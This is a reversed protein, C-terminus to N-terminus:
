LHDLPLTPNRSQPLFAPQRGTPHSGAAQPPEPFSTPQAENLSDITFNTAHFSPGFRLDKSERRDSLKKELELNPTRALTEANLNEPTELPRPPFPRHRRRRHRM